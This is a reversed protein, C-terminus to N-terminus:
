AIESLVIPIFKETFVYAALASLHEILPRTYLRIAQNRGLIVSKLPVTQNKTYINFAATLQM